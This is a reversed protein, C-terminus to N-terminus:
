AAENEMRENYRGQAAAGNFRARRLLAQQAAPVNASKGRWAQMVPDQLARAYSFTLPWPLHPHKANMANLHATAEEPGQGGSLFAVGAVAAPVTNLLCRLTKEAVEDVGARVKCEKGSIVMNPKLVMGEFAVRQQALESFVQRFTAISALYCQEITHDGDILVEPEVIPVLDAEQALAAYRALAHANVHICGPTPIGSGIAIVARWKTFRAGLKRYEALRERLGDLGETIKENPFGALDKTGADVKIGPVIGQRQMVKPFSTGDATTQRITEDHLIAGSIYRDLGHTNVLLERYARRNDVTNEVGVKAFRKEITGTSEDMAIIGKGPTVMARATTNLADLNM